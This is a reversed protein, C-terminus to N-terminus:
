IFINLIDSLDTQESKLYPYLLKMSTCIRGPMPDNDFLYYFPYDDLQVLKDILVVVLDSLILQSNTMIAKYLM